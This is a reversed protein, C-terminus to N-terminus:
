CTYLVNLYCEIVSFYEEVFSGGNDGFGLTPPLQPKYFIFNSLNIIYYRDNCFVPM